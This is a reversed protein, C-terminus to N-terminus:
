KAVAGCHAVCGSRDVATCYFAPCTLTIISALAVAAWDRHHDRDWLNPQLRVHIIQLHCSQVDPVVGKGSLCAAALCGLLAGALLIRQRKMSKGAEGARQISCYFCHQRAQVRSSKWFARAPFLSANPVHGTTSGPKQNTSAVCVLVDCFRCASLAAGKCSDANSTWVANCLLDLAHLLSSSLSQGRTDALHAASRGRLTPALLLLHHIFRM